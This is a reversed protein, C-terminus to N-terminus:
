GGTRRRASLRWGGSVQEVLGAAALATLSREVTEVELGATASISRAGAPRIVPVADLVRQEEELLGDTAREPARPYPTLQQGLPSIAELVDAVSTVLVADRERVLVHSGQSMGSTIPGPVALVPRGCQEAWGASNLAGSRLAAEAVLTGLAAAAILRNRALFRLRTPSCGPAMESVVLGEAAIRTLLSHNGKPYSVDVGCALIAVTVGAAALAGRHAATDIGYAGGSVIALGNDALGAALESAVHDGYQTSARSGVIAVSRETVQRLNAPGRVWLGFPVGGRRSQQGVEALVDLQGPWEEDGPIVFRAGCAAARDLDAEPRIDAMRTSWRELGAAGALLRAWIETAPLGEFATAAAPDGPEVVRCLGARAIREADRDTAPGATELTTM